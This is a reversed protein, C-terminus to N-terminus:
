QSNVLPGLAFKHIVLVTINAKGQLAFGPLLVGVLHTEQHIQTDRKIQLVASRLM